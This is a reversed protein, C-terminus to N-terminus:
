HKFFTLTKVPHAECYVTVFKKGTDKGISEDWDHYVYGDVVDELAGPPKKEDSEHEGWAENIHVEKRTTDLKMRWGYSYGEKDVNQTKKFVVQQGKLDHPGKGKPFAGFDVSIVKIDPEIQVPLRWNESQAFTSTFTSLTFLIAIAFSKRM